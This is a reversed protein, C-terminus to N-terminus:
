LCVIIINFDTLTYTSNISCFYGSHMAFLTNINGVTFSPHNIIKRNNLDM